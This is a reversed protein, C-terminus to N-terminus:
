GGSDADRCSSSHCLFGGLRYIHLCNFVADTFGLFRANRFDTGKALFRGVETTAIQGKFHDAGTAANIVHLIGKQLAHGIHGFASHAIRRSGDAHRSLFDAFVAQDTKQISQRM